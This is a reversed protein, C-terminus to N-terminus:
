VKGLRVLERNERFKNEFRKQQDEVNGRRPGFGGGKQPVGGAGWSITFTGGVLGGENETKKRTLLEQFGIPEKDGPVKVVCPGLM